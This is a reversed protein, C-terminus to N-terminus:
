LGRKGEVAKLYVAVAWGLCPGIGAVFVGIGLLFWSVPELGLTTDVVDGIIGLVAFIIGLAFFIRSALLHYGGAGIIEKPDLCTLSKPNLCNAM